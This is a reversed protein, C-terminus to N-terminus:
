DPPLRFGGSFPYRCPQPSLGGIFEVTGGLHAIRTPGTSRRVQGILVKEPVGSTLFFRRIREFRALAQPRAIETPGDAEYVEVVAGQFPCWDSKKVRDFAIMIEKRTAEDADIGNRVFTLEISYTPMQLPHVPNSM